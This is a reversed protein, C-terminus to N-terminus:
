SNQLILVAFFGSLLMFLCLMAAFVLGLFLSFANYKIKKILLESITGFLLGSILSAITVFFVETPKAESYFELPIYIHLLVLVFLVKWIVSYLKAALSLKDSKKFFLLFRNKLRGAIATLKSNLLLALEKTLSIPKQSNIMNVLSKCVLEAADEDDFGLVSGTQENSLYLQLKESLEFDGMLVPIIKKGSLVANKLQNEMVKMSKKDDSILFVFAYLKDIFEPTLQSDRLEDYLFVQFGTETLKCKISQAVHSLGDSFSVYVSYERKM